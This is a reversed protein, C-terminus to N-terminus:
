AHSANKDQDTNDTLMAQAYGIASLSLLKMFQLDIATAHQQVDRHAVGGAAPPTSISNSVSGGPTRTDYLPEPIGSSSRSATNSRNM